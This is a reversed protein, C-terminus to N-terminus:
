LGYLTGPMHLSVAYQGMARGLIAGVIQAVVAYAVMGLTEARAVAIEPVRTRLDPVVRQGTIWYIVAILMLPFVMGIEVSFIIGLFPTGKEAFLKFEFPIKGQSIVLIAVTGLAWLILGIIVSNPIRRRPAVLTSSWQSM